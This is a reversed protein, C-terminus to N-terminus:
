SLESMDRELKSTERHIIQSFRDDLDNDFIEITLDPLDRIFTWEGYGDEYDPVSVLVKITMTKDTITPATPTTPRLEMDVSASCM